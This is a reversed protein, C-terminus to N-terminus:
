SRVPGPGALVVSKQIVPHMYAVTRDFEKQSDTLSKGIEWMILKVILERQAVMRKIFNQMCAIREEVKMTPWAGRGADYARAAADLAVDSEAAGMVPYSGIEMQQVSGDAARVCVPSLVTKRAGDWAQLVGDVLSVRQHIPASLRVGPPIDQEAPFLAQLASSDLM